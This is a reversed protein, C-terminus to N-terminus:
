LCEYFVSRRAYNWWLLAEPSGTYRWPKLFSTYHLIYAYKLIEKEKNYDSIDYSKKNRLKITAVANWINDIYKINNKCIINIIDQDPAKWKGKKGVVAFCKDTINLDNWKKVNFLLVGSNIYNDPSCNLKNECYKRFFKKLPQVCGGIPFDALDSDYLESVDHLILTDVDIYLIKDYGYIIQPILFRYFMEKSYHFQSYLDADEPLKNKVNICTVRINEGTLRELRCQNEPKIDTHLIYIDYFNSKNTHEILSQLSVSLIKVYEDNVSYVIPVIKQKNNLFKNLVSTNNYKRYIEQYFMNTYKDTYKQIDFLSLGFEDQLYKQTYFIALSKIPENCREIVHYRFHNLMHHLFSTKVLEYRNHAILYDRIERHVIFSNLWYQNVKDTLSTHFFRRYHILKRNLFSIRKAMAIATQAFLNDEVRTAYSFKLDNKIVFERRYMSSWVATIYLNLINDPYSEASFVKDEPLLDMSVDYEPPEDRLTEQNFMWFRCFVIDSNTKEIKDHLSELLDPEFFDDADMFSIFDGKALSIGKNRAIGPGSNKQKIIKIRKDKNAYSQIIKLSSDTSGDDVLLIEINKLTQNIISDLCPKLYKEANYVPVIVSIIPNTM